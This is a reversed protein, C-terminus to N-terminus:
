CRLSISTAQKHQVQKLTDSLIEKLHYSTHNAETVVLTLTKITLGHEEHYYQVSIGLFHSRLRTVGDFKISILAGSLSEKLKSKKEETKKLVMSRIAQRALQIELNKAFNGNLLQFGDDQFFTLPVGNYVIMKLIGNIFDEKTISATAKRNSKKFFSTMRSQGKEKQLKIKKTVESDKEEVRNFAQRHHRQLHRKPNASTSGQKLKPIVSNCTHCQDLMVQM